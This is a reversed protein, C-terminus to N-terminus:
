IGCTQYLLTLICIVQYCNTFIVDANNSDANHPLIHYFPMLFLKVTGQACSLFYASAALQFPETLYRVQHVLMVRQLGDQISKIAIRCPLFLDRVNEKLVEM